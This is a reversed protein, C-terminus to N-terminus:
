PACGESEVRVAHRLSQFPGCHALSAGVKSDCRHECRGGIPRIAPQHSFERGIDGVAQEITDYIGCTRPEEPTANKGIPM